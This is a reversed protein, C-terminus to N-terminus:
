GAEEPEEQLEREKDIQEDPEAGRERAQAVVLQHFEAPLPQNGDAKAAHSQVGHDAQDRLDLGTSEYLYGKDYVLGQTFADPDHPYVHVVTYTQVPASVLLAASIAMAGLLILWDFQARKVV